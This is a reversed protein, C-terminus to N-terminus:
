RSRIGGGWGGARRGQMGTHKPGTGEAGGVGGARFPSSRDIVPSDSALPVCALPAAPSNRRPFAIRVRGTSAMLGECHPLLRHGALGHRDLGTAKLPRRRVVKWCCLLGHVENPQALIWFHRACRYHAAQGYSGNPIANIPKISKRGGICESLQDARGSPSNNAVGLRASHWLGLAVQPGSLLLERARDFIGM